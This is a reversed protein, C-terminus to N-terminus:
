CSTARGQTGCEADVNDTLTCTDVIVANDVLIDTTTVDLAHACDDGAVCTSTTADAAVACTGIQDPGRTCETGDHAPSPGTAHINPNCVQCPNSPDFRTGPAVCAGGGSPPHFFVCQNAICGFPLSGDNFPVLPPPGGFVPAQPPQPACLLDRHCEAIHAAPDTCLENHPVLGTCTGSGSADCVATYCNDAVSLASFYFAADGFCGGEVATERGIAEQVATTPQCSSRAGIHGGDCAAHACFFNTLECPAGGPIVVPPIDQGCVQFSRVVGEPGPLGSGPHTRDTGAPRDVVITTCVGTMSSCSPTDTTCWNGDFGCVRDHAPESPFTFNLCTATQGDGSGPHTGAVDGCVLTAATGADGRVQRCFEDEARAVPDGGPAPALLTCSAPNPECCVVEDTCPLGDGLGSLQECPDHFVATAPLALSGEFRPPTFCGTTTNAGPNARDCRESGNCACGDQCVANNITARCGNFDAGSAPVVSTGPAPPPPTATDLFCTDSECSRLLSTPIAATPSVHLRLGTCFTPRPTHTCGAPGHTCADLTCSALDGCAASSGEDIHGDCDDDIGNCTEITNSGNPRGPVPVCAGYHGGACFRRGNSGSPCNSAPLTCPVSASACTAVLGGAFSGPFTLTAAGLRTFLDVFLLFPTISALAIPGAGGDTGIAGADTNTGTDLVREWAITIAPATVVAFGRPDTTCRIAAGASSPCAVMTGGTCDSFIAGVEDARGTAVCVEFTGGSSIDVGASARRPVFLSRPTADQGGAIDFAVMGIMPDSSSAVRLRRGEFSAPVVVVPADDVHVEIRGDSLHWADPAATGWSGDARVAEIWTSAGVVRDAVPVDAAAVCQGVANCMRATEHHERREGHDRHDHEFCGLEDRADDESGCVTGAGLEVQRCCGAASEYRGRRCDGDLAVCRTSAPGSVTRDPGSTVGSIPTSVWASLVDRDSCGAFSRNADYVAHAVYANEPRSQALGQLHEVSWALRVGHTFHLDGLARSSRLNLELAARERADGTRARRLARCGDEDGRATACRALWQDPTFTCLEGVTLAEQTSQGGSDGGCGLAILTSAVVM